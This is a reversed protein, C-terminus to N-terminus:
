IKFSNLFVDIERGEKISCIPIHNPRNNKIMYQQVYQLSNRKEGDSAGSGVWVFIEYGIDVIFVDESKLLDKKVDVGKAIEKMELTGSSDSLRFMVREQVKKEAEENTSVDLKGGLIAWFEDVEKGEDLSIVKPRSQRQDRISECITVAKFKEFPNSKSGIWNYIILGNDLIFIDHNNLSKASLEVEFCRFNKRGKVQLLRPRYKEVPVHKFGTEVGGEMIHIVNFYSLFLDSEYGQVERYLVVARNFLDDLEVIKYAATGAEDQTTFTGVWMHAHM